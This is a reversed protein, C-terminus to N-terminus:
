RELSNTNDFVPFGTTTTQESKFIETAVATIQRVAPETSRYESASQEQVALHQKRDRLFQTATVSGSALNSNENRLMENLDEKSSATTFVRIRDQLASYIRLLRFVAHLSTLATTKWIWVNRQRDYLAIRYYTM